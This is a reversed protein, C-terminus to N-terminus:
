VPFSEPHPSVPWAPLHPKTLAAWVANELARDGSELRGWLADALRYVHGDEVPLLYGAAVLSILADNSESEPYHRVLDALSVTSAMTGGTLCSGVALTRPTCTPCGDGGCHGMRITKLM